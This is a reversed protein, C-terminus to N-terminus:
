QHVVAGEAYFYDFVLNNIDDKRLHFYDSEEGVPLPTAAALTATWNPRLWFEV